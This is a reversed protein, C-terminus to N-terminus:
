TTASGSFFDIVIDNPESKSIILFKKLLRVPKPDNFHGQANLCDSGYFYNM